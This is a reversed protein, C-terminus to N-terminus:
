LSIFDTFSSRGLLFGLAPYCLNKLIYISSIKGMVMVKGSPRKYMNDNQGTSKLIRIILLNLLEYRRQVYQVCQVWDYMVFECCKINM